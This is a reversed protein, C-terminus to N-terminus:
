SMLGSEPKVDRHVLGVAHAAALGRGAACLVTLVDRWSRPAAATWASLVQGEVFEMAVWVHGAHDGVDFVAVVNPHQLRAMAQAERLLRARADLADGRTHLLKLAVKRDLEPDYAAYVVGMGGAGIRALVIYRGVVEGSALELPEGPQSVSSTTAEFPAALTRAQDLSEDPARTADALSAAALTQAQGLPPRVTANDATGTL